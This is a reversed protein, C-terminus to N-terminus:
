AIGLKDCLRRRTCLIGFLWSLLFPIYKKAENKKRTPEDLKSSHARRTELVANRRVVACVRRSACAVPTASVSRRPALVQRLGYNTGAAPVGRSARQCATADWVTPDGLLTLPRRHKAACATLDARSCVHKVPSSHHPNPSDKFKQELVSKRSVVQIM